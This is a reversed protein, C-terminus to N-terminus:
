PRWLDKIPHKLWLDKTAYGAVDPLNEVALGFTDTTILQLEYINGSHHV